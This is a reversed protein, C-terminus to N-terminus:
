LEVEGEKTFKANASIGDGKNVYGLEYQAYTQKSNGNV